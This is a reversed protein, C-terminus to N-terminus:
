VPLAPFNKKAEGGLEGEGYISLLFNLSKREVSTSLAGKSTSAIRHLM